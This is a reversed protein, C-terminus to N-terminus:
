NLNVEKANSWKTKKHKKKLEEVIPLYKKPLNNMSYVRSYSPSISNVDYNKGSYVEITEKNEKPQVGYIIEKNGKKTGIARFEWNNDPYKRHTKHTKIAYAM